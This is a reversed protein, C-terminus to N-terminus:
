CSRAKQESIKLAGWLDQSIACVGEQGDEVCRLIWAVALLSLITRGMQSGMLGDSAVGDVVPVGGDM